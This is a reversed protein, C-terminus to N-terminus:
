LQDELKTLKIQYEEFCKFLKDSFNQYDRLTKQGTDDLLHEKCCNIYNEIISASTICTTENIKEYTLGFLLDIEKASIKFLLVQNSIADEQSKLNERGKQDSDLIKKLNSDNKVGRLEPENEWLFKKFKAHLFMDRLEDKHQAAKILAQYRVPAKIQRQWIQIAQFATISGLIAAVGGLLSTVSAISALFTAEPEISQIILMLYIVFFTFTFIVRNAENKTIKKFIDKM